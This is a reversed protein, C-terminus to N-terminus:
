GSSSSLGGDPSAIGPTQRQAAPPTADFPQGSAFPVSTGAISAMRCARAKMVEESPPLWWHVRVAQAVRGDGVQTYVVQAYDMPLLLRLKVREGHLYCVCDPALDFVQPTGDVLITLERRPVDIRDILGTVERALNDSDAASM